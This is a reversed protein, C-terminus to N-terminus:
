DEMVQIFIILHILEQGNQERRATSDNLVQDAAQDIESSKQPCASVALTEKKWNVLHQILQLLINKFLDSTLQIKHM